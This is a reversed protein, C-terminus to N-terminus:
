SLLLVFIGLFGAYEEVNRKGPNSQSGADPLNELLLVRHIRWGCRQIWSGLLRERHSSDRKFLQVTELIKNNPHRLRNKAWKIIWIVTSKRLM